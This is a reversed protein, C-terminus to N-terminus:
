PIANVTAVPRSRGSGGGTLATLEDGLGGSLGTDSDFDALFSDTSIYGGPEDEAGFDTGSAIIGASSEEPTGLSELLSDLDESTKAVPVGAPEDYMESAPVHISEVYAEVEPAESTEAEESISEVFRAWDDGSEADVVPVEPLTDPTDPADEPTVDAEFFYSETDLEAMPERIEPGPVPEELPEPAPEPVVPSIADEPELLESPYEGLGLTRLDVEFDGTPVFGDPLPAVEVVPPAPIEELTSYSPVNMAPYTIEEPVPTEEVLPEPDIPVASATEVPVEPEIAEPELLVPETAEAPLMSEAWQDLVNSMDQAVPEDPEPVAQLVPAPQEHQLAVEHPILVAEMMEAFVTMDDDTASEAGVSLFEPMEPAAPEADLDALQSESGSEPESVVESQPEPEPVPTPEPREDLVPDVVAKEARKRERAAERAAHEARLRVVEDDSPVELLGASLLGYIVRSVEFDTSRVHLALERVSRTGDILLLLNWEIPKLSIEFTGEGPATAMKFVMDASPVKKKIRNWEELRRSGEMVINEVSVALGIDEHVVEPLAEFDFDGEDWRMIDFITDEIQEQVFTELMQQTIYGESVLIEGLRRSGSESAHIELARKLAAPTIRQASVLRAGLLDHRWNSQAFFVDGDRFWISGEADPSVVRLVGTKGSLQVLQFVDPLSFDKLNGRLAM